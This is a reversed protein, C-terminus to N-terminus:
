VIVYDGFGRSGVLREGVSIVIKKCSLLLAITNEKREKPSPSCSFSQALILLRSFQSVVQALITNSSKNPFYDLFLICSVFRESCVAFNLLKKVSPHGPDLLSMLGLRQFANVVIVNCMHQYRQCWESVPWYGKCFIKSQCGSYVMGKQRM